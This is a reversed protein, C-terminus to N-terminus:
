PKPTEAQSQAQVPHQALWYQMFQREESQSSIIDRAMRQLAPDHGYQLEIKAMDIAGQHHPLMGTVFDRDANGSPPVHMANMMTQMAQQYAATAPSEAAATGPAPSEAPAMRMAPPEAAQAVVPALVLAAVIFRKIM